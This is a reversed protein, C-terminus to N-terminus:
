FMYALLATFLFFAYQQQSVIAPEQNGNQTYQMQNGIMSLDLYDSMIQLAKSITIAIKAFTPRDEPDSDWCRLMLSYMTESCAANQPKELRRGNRLFTPLDCPDLGPYPGSGVTFVEWCTVGFSWMDTKENFLGDQISEPALWKFPLKVGRSEKDLRFYGSIYVDESLGFDGVKIVGDADIMCNRAALDRHVFKQASLYEMGQAVQYSIRTLLKESAHLKKVDATDAVLLLPRNMKLYSLLSGNAMYPMVMSPTNAADFSMGMLTMVHPHSFDQMKLIESMMNHLDRMTFLGNGIANLVLIHDSPIIAGRYHRMFDAMEMNGHGTKLGENKIVLDIMLGGASNGRHLFRQRNIVLVTTVILVLALLLLFLGAVSGGVSPAIPFAEAKSTVLLTINGPTYSLYKGVTVRVQANFSFQASLFQPPQCTLTTDTTTGVDVQCMEGDITVSIEFQANVNSIYYGDIRIPKVSGATQTQDDERISLFVPDPFVALNLSDGVPGPVGEMVITYDVGAVLYVAPGFFDIPGLPPAICILRGFHQECESTNGNTVVFVAKLTTDPFKGIFNLNIGGSPITNTPIVSTYTFNKSDNIMAATVNTHCQNSDDQIWSIERTSNQCQSRRSCKQEVTCWGCLPNVNVVCSLCGIFNSCQEFPVQIVSINTTVYIYSLGSIWTLKIARQPLVWSSFLNGTSNASGDTVHFTQLISAGMRNTSAIFLLSLSEIYISLVYDLEFSTNTSLVSVPHSVAHLTPAETAGPSSMNCRSSCSFYSNSTNRWPLPGSFCTGNSPSSSSVSDIMSDIQSLRFACVRGSYMGSYGGLPPTVIGVLLATEYSESGNVPYTVLSAGVLRAYGNVRGALDLCDLEIESVSTVRTEQSNDCVRLVRIGTESNPSASVDLVVFYVYSGAVFGGFWNRAFSVATVDFLGGSSRSVNRVTRDLGYQGILNVTDNSSAAYFSNGGGIVPASVLAVSSGNGALAIPFVTSSGDKLNSADYSTCSKDSLCVVLKSADLTLTIGLVSLGESIWLVEQTDFSSNLRYVASRDSVSSSAFLQKADSSIALDKMEAEAAPTFSRLLQQSSQTLCVIKFLCIFLLAAKRQVM